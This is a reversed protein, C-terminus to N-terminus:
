ASAFHPIRWKEWKLCENGVLPDAFSNTTNITMTVAATFDITPKVTRAKTANLATTATSLTHMPHMRFLGEFWCVTSSDVAELVDLKAIIEMYRVAFTNVAFSDSTDAAVESGGLILKTTLTRGAGGSAQQNGQQIIFRWMWQDFQRAEGSPISLSSSSVIPGEAATNYRQLGVGSDVLVPVGKDTIHEAWTPFYEYNAPWAPGLARRM